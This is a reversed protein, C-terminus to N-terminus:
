GKVRVIKSVMDLSKVHRMVRALHVRGQVSISFTMASYKGDRGDITVNNINSDMESIASAIIALVGRRNIADVRIDVPFDNEINSEWRVDVWKEPSNRFDAVNKCSETHVVIGRGASVFGQISDGPIPHCCRAFNVVMGETGSIALPRM